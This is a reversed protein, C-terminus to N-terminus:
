ESAQSSPPRVRLARLNRFASVRTGNCDSGTRVSRNDNKPDPPLQRERKEWLHFRVGTAPVDFLQYYRFFDGRGYRFQPTEIVSGPLPGANAATEPEMNAIIIEVPKTDQKITAMPTDDFSIDVLGQDAGPSHVDIRIDAAIFGYLEAKDLIPGAHYDAPPLVKFNKLKDEKIVGTDDSPVLLVEGPAEAPNNDFITMDTYATADYVYLMTLDATPMITLPDRQVTGVETFDTLWRFDYLDSDLPHHRDFPDVEHQPNEVKVGYRDGIEITQVGPAVQLTAAGRIELSLQHDTFRPLAIEWRGRREPHDPDEFDPNFCCAALGQITIRITAQPDPVDFPM